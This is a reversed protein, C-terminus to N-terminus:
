MELQWASSFPATLARPCNHGLPEGAPRSPNPCPSPLLMKPVLGGALLARWLFPRLTLLGDESLFSRKWPASGQFVPVVNLPPRLGSPPCVGVRGQLPVLDWPGLRPAPAQSHMGLLCAGANRGYVHSQRMADVLLCRPPETPHYPGRHSRHSWVPADGQPTPGFHTGNGLHGLCTQKYTSAVQCLTGPPVKQTCSNEGAGCRGAWPDREEM